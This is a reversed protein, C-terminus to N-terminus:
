NKDSYNQTCVKHSNNVNKLFDMGRVEMNERKKKNNVELKYANNAMQTIYAFPSKKSLVNFRNVYTLIYVIVNSIVDAAEDTDFTRYVGLQCLRRYAIDQIAKYLPVKIANFQEQYEAKTMLGLDLKDRIEDKWKKSEALYVKFDDCDQATTKGKALAQDHRALTCGSWKLDDTINYRNYEKLLRKLEEPEVYYEAM